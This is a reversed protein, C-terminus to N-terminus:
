RGSNILYGGAASIIFLIFYPILIDTELCTVKTGDTIISSNSCNLDGRTQTINDTLYPMILIGFFYILAFVAIGLFIGGKKNM